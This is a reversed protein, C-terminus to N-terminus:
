FRPEIAPCENGELAFKSASYPGGGPIGHWGSISSMFFIIGSRTSRMYPLVSRTLRLPGFVNTEFQAHM